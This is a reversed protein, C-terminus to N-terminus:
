GALVKDIMARFIERPQDEPAVACLDGVSEISHTADLYGADCMATTPNDRLEQLISRVASILDARGDILVDRMDDIPGEDGHPQRVLVDPQEKLARAFTRALREVVESM